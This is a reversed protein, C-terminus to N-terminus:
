EKDNKLFRINRKLGDYKTRKVASKTFLQDFNEKNLNDWDSKRMAKLEDSLVFLPEKHPKSFRNWPCVDQCIDCGFIWDHFHPKLKEPLDGRHEITLYSICKRADLRHSETLAGTPCADICRTCTGCYDTVPKNKKQISVPLFAHGIFFFSGKQPHILCTNKGIFGLGSKEAWARDLIPASDTFVRTELKGTFEEIFMILEQLRERIVFHYDKGYAYKAIKYNDSEVLKEGPFYNFLVSIVTKTNEVLKRPDYRKERNREMYGMEGHFGDALWKEVKEADEDLITAPSFGCDDFGLELAKQIIAEALHNYSIAQPAM